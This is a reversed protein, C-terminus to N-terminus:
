RHLMLLTSLSQLRNLSHQNQQLWNNNAKGGSDEKEEKEKCEVILRYETVLTGHKNVTWFFGGEAEGRDKTEM